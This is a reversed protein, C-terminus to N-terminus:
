HAATYTNELLRKRKINNVLKFKEESIKNKM